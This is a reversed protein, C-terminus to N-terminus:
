GDGWCLRVSFFEIHVEDGPEVFGMFASLM